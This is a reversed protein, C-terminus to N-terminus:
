LKRLEEDSIQWYSLKLRSWTDDNMAMILIIFYDCGSKKMKQCKPSRKTRTGFEFPRIWIASYIFVMLGFFHGRSQFFLLLPQGFLQFNPRFYPNDNM